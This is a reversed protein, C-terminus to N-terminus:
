VKFVDDTTKTLYVSEKKKKGIEKKNRKRKRKELCPKEIYDQSHVM